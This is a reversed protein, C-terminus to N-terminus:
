ALLLRLLQKNHLLFNAKGGEVDAIQRWGPGLEVLVQFGARGFLVFRLDGPGRALDVHQAGIHDAELLHKGLGRQRFCQRASLSV